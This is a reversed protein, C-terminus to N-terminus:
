PFLIRQSSRISSLWWINKFYPIESTLNPKVLLLLRGPGLGLIQSYHLVMLMPSCNSKGELPMTSTLMKRRLKRLSLFILWLGSWTQKWSWCNMPSRAILYERVVGFNLKPDDSTPLKFHDKMFHISPIKIGKTAKSGIMSAEFYNEIDRSPFKVNLRRPFPIASNLSPMFPTSNIKNLQDTTWATNSIM